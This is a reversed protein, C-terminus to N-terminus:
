HVTQGSMCKWCLCYNFFWDLTWADYFGTQSTLWNNLGICLLENLLDRATEVVFSFVNKSTKM